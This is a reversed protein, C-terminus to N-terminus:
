HMHRVDIVVGHDVHVVVHGEVAARTSQLGMRRWVFQHRLVIVMELRGGHLPIMHVGRGTVPFQARREVVTMGSHRRSSM